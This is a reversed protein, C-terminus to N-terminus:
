SKHLAYHLAHWLIIVLATVDQQSRLEIRLPRPKITQCGFRTISQIM